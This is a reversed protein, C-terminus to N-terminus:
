GARRDDVPTDIPLSGSDVQAAEPRNKRDFVVIGTLAESIARGMWASKDMRALSAAAAVRAHTAVDLKVSAMVYEPPPPTAHVRRGKIRAAV